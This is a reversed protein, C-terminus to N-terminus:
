KASFGFSLDGCIAPHCPSTLGLLLFVFEKRFYEAGHRKQQWKWETLDNPLRGVELLQVSGGGQIHWSEMICGLLSVETAILQFGMGLPVDRSMETEDWGLM